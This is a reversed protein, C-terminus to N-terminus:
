VFIWVLYSHNMLADGKPNHMQLTAHMSGNIELILTHSDQRTGAARHWQNSHMISLIQEQLHQMGKCGVVQMNFLTPMANRTKEAAGCLNRVHM